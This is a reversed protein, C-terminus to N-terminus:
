PEPSSTSWPRKAAASAPAMAESWPEYNRKDLLLTELAGIREDLNEIRIFEPPTTPLIALIGLKRLKSSNRANAVVPRLADDGCVKVCEM